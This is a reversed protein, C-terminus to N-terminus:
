HCLCGPLKQPSPLLRDRITATAPPLGPAWWAAPVRRAAGRSWASWSGASASPMRNRDPVPTCGPCQTGRPAAPLIIDPTQRDRPEQQGLGPCAPLSRQSAAGEACNSERSFHQQRPCSTVVGPRPVRPVSLRCLRRTCFERFGPFGTCNKQFAGNLPGCHSSRRGSTSDPDLSCDAEYLLQRPAEVSGPGAPDECGAPSM